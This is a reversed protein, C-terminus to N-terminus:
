EDTFSRKIEELARLYSDPQTDTHSCLVSGCLEINLITFACELQSKMYSFSKEGGRGAAALFFAKRHKKIQQTKKNAYFGTYYVQFRDILAKIPASFSGNYVPSAFVILDATEFSEYFSDLDRFVCCGNKECYNCGTCPSFRENCADFIKVSCSSFVKAIENCMRNTFGNERHSGKIILVSKIDM